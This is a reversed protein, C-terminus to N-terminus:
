IAPIQVIMRHVKIGDIACPGFNETGFDLDEIRLSGNMPINVIMHTTDPQVDDDDDDDDGCPALTIVDLLVANNGFMNGFSFPGSFGWSGPTEPAGTATQALHIGQFSLSSPSTNYVYKSEEIDLELGFEYGLGGSFTLYLYSSPMDINGIELVGLPQDCFVFDEVEVTLDQTWDTNVISVLSTGDIASSPDNVTFIDFAIQGDNSDFYVPGGAKGHLKIDKFEILDDDCVDDDDDDDDDDDLGVYNDGTERVAIRDISMDMSYNDVYFSIGGSAEIESLENDGMPRLEALASFPLFVWLFAVFLIRTIWRNM